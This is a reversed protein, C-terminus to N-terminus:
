NNNKETFHLTNAISQKYMISFNMCTLLIRKKHWPDFSRPYITETRDAKVKAINFRMLEYKVHISGM